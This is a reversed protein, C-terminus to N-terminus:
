RWWAKFIAKAFLLGYQIDKRNIVTIPVESVRLGKKVAEIIVEASQFQDERLDLVRMKNVNFAKFGSSCDTLQVGTVLSIIKTFVNIGMHRLKTSTHYKGLIRSGIVLDSRGSLIPELMRQIDSPLHQNDSDM